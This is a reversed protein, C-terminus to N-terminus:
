WLILRVLLIFVATHLLLGQLTPGYRSTTTLRPIKDTLQYAVPSSVIAFVLGLLVAAWWKQGGTPQTCFPKNELNGNGSSSIRSDNLLSEQTSLDPM